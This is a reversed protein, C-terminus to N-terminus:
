PTDDPMEEALEGLAVLAAKARAIGARAERIGAPVEPRAHTLGTIALQGLYHALTERHQILRRWQVAIAEERGGCTPPADYTHQGGIISGVHGGTVNVVQMTGVNGMVQIGSTAPPPPPAEEVWLRGDRARLWLVPVWWESRMEKRAAALARDIRGDRALERLLRGTFSAAAEMTITAQMGIVAPIGASALLPGIATFPAEDQSAGECAVLVACLPRQAADLTALEAALTEGRIPATRGDIDALYLVTGAETTRGHCILILLHAGRLGVRLNDLTALSTSGPTIDALFDARLDGLAVRVREAEGAVDVPALRYRKIDSPGAVAILTRLDPRAPPAPDHLDDLIVLRALSGGEQQVLPTNAVPDCLLEWRLAHLEGNPDDILVRVHLGQRDREAYGKARQWAPHLAQPLTMATLAAAYADPLLMLGRLAKSSVTVPASGLNARSRPLEAHLEAAVSADPLRRITLEVIVSM